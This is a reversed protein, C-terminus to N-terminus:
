EDAAVPTRTADAIGGPRLWTRRGCHDCKWRPFVILLLVLWWLPALPFLSVAKLRRFLLRHVEASGCHRCRADAVDDAGPMPGLAEESTALPQATWREGCSLCRHGPMLLAVAAASIILAAALESQGVATGIGVALVAVVAFLGLRAMRQVETSGCAPCAVPAARAESAIEEAVSEADADGADVAANYLVESAEEFDDGAVVLKVGGIANSFMWNVGVVNADALGCPIGAADVASRAAGAEGLTSFRAVITEM